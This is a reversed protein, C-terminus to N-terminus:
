AATGPGGSAPPAVAGEDPTRRALRGLAECSGALQLLGPLQCQVAEYRGQVWLLLLYTGGGAFAELSIPAGELAFLPHFGERRLFDVLAPRDLNGPLWDAPTSRHWEGGPHYEWVPTFRRRRRPTGDQAARPPTTSTRQAM